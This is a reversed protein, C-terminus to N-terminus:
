LHEIKKLYIRWIDVDYPYMQFLSEAALNCLSCSKCIPLQRGLIQFLLHLAPFLSSGSWITITKHRSEVSDAWTQRLLNKPYFRDIQVLYVFLTVLYYFFFFFFFCFFFFFFLYIFLFVFCGGGGLFFFFLLLLLCVFLCFCFLCVFLFCVFLFCVFLVFLCVVFFCFLVLFFFFFIIFCFCFFM